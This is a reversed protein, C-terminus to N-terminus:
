TRDRYTQYEPMSFMSRSGHMRREKVGRFRQYVSILETPKPSPVPQLAVADLISFIGTNIGIGLAIPAIAAAAFGPNRRLTRVAYRVDNWENSLMETRGEYMTIHSPHRRLTSLINRCLWLAGRRGGAYEELVDGLEEESATL